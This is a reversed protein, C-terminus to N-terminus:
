NPWRNRKPWRIWVTPISLCGSGDGHYWVKVGIRIEVIRKDPLRGRYITQKGARLKKLRLM